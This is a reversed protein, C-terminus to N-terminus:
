TKLEERNAKDVVKDLIRDVGDRIPGFMEDIITRELHRMHASVCILTGHAQCIHKNM